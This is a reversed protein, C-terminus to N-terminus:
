VRAAIGESSRESSGSDSSSSPPPLLPAAAAPHPPGRSQLMAPVHTPPVHAHVVPKAPALQSASAM